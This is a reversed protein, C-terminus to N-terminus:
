NKMTIDFDFKITEPWASNKIILITTLISNVNLPNFRKEDITIRLHTYHLFITIKKVTLIQEATRPPVKENDPFM